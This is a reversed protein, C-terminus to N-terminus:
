LASDPRVISRMKRDGSYDTNSVKLGIEKLTNRPDKEKAPNKDPKETGTIDVFNAEYL